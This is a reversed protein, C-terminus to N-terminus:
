RHGHNNEEETRDDGESARLIWEPVEDRRAVLAEVGRAVAALRPLRRSRKDLDEMTFPAHKDRGGMAHFARELRDRREAFTLVAEDRLEALPIM